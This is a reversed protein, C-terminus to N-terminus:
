DLFEEREIVRLDMITKVFTRWRGREEADCVWEMDGM